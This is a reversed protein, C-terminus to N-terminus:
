STRPSYLTHLVKVAKELDPPVSADPQFEWRNFLLLRFNTETVGFDALHSLVRDPRLPFRLLTENTFSERGISVYAEMPNFRSGRRGSADRRVDLNLTQTSSASNHSAQSPEAAARRGDAPRADAPPCGTQSLLPPIALSHRIWGENSCLVAHLHDIAEQGGPTELISETTLHINIDDATESRPHGQIGEELPSRNGNATFLAGLSGLCSLVAKQLKGTTRNRGGAATDDSRHLANAALQDALRSCRATIKPEVHTGFVKCLRAESKLIDYLTSLIVQLGASNNTSRVGARHVILDLLTLCTLLPTPFTPVVAM